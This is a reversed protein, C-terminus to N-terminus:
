SLRMYGGGRMESTSYVLVVENESDDREFFAAGVEGQQSSYIVATSIFVILFNIAGLFLWGKRKRQEM